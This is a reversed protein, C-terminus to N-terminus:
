AVALRYYLEANEALKAVVKADLHGDEVRSQLDNLIYELTMTRRYPREQALAQFIDAVTIIRCELDLEKNGNKFPYGDGILTEHHFGAWVPIKSDEFVRQLIRFTDYSHRHMTAREEPTLSGPKDIIDESVRLKGIDHLLGAIEVQELEYGGIGFDMALQRAIQAVRQSHEDTYPSKADVVRSFLRALEKLAPIGLLTKPTHSGIRRLDEDLYEHEMALWFAEVDAIEVFADVLEPAFLIGSLMKIRAIIGPYEIMILGSDLFPAQLVDVRDALFLLNARLRLRDDIPTELLKEWRTHHYRIETSLHALPQCASLYDAGRICHDEAGEWELTETIRRHEHIRSVGCDHLMGSYLISLCESEPWNLHEAIARAMVAVRKGHRIEDVGVLDLSCTLATIANHIDIHQLKM